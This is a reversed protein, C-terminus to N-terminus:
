KEKRTYIYYLYSEPVGEQFEVIIERQIQEKVYQRSNVLSKPKDSFYKQINIYSYFLLSLVVVASIVIKNLFFIRDILYGLIVLAVPVTASFYYNSIEGKYVSLVVWPVLFWIITLYLLKFKSKQGGKFFYVVSFIPIMVWGVYKLFKFYLIGEFEIFADSTLQLMRRLHFGHYYTSIYALMNKGSSGGKTTYAVVIPGLFFLLIPITYLFYKLTSKNRPFFPLSLLIMIPFFVATFHIHFMFGVGGALLLIYKENGTIIKYISYFIIASVPIIFNVPWQVRDFSIGFLSVTYIFVSFIAVRQSFISKSIFYIVFFTFVSVMGAFISSAIPDLGSFFYFPAILFYYYPGIYFGTSGKAQMGYLPLRHEVIINKAAWANDVQDWGFLSYVETQFFRLFVHLALILLLIILWRKEKLIKFNFKFRM